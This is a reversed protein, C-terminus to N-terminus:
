SLINFLLISVVHSEFKALQGRGFVDIGIFVKHIDGGKEELIRETRELNRENWTYNILIGDCVDFFLKNKANLENQWTLTGIDIISDYWLVMGHQVDQHMRITLYEVFEKLMPIKSEHLSCEVNLLWGEFQCRKAVLVLAEVISNMYARSKLIEELLIRGRSSEVIITGLVKVGNNHAANIWTM